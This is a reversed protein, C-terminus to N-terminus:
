SMDMQEFIPKLKGFRHHEEQNLIYKQVKKVDWPSISFAGYAGQWKFITDWPSTENALRSSAGKVRKVLTAVAATAPIQALL